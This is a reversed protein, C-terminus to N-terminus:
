IIFASGFRARSGLLISALYGPLIFGLLVAATLTAMASIM